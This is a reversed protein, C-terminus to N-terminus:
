DGYVVGQVKGHKLRLLQEDVMKIYADKNAIENKLAAIQNEQRKKITELEPVKQVQDFLLAFLEIAQLPDKRIERIIKNARLADETPRFKAPLIVGDLKLQDLVPKNYRKLPPGITGERRLSYRINELYRESYGTKQAIEVNSMEAKFLQVIEEKPKLSPRAM